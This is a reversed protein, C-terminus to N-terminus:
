DRRASAPSPDRAILSEREVVLREGHGPVDRGFAVHDVLELAPPRFDQGLAAVQRYREAPRPPGLVAGGLQLIEELFPAARRTM